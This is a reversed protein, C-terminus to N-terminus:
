PSQYTIARKLSRSLEDSGTVTRYLREFWNGFPNDTILYTWTSSPGKLGEQDMDIGDPGIQASTFTEVIHDDISELLHGFARGVTKHYMDLPNQAGGGTL